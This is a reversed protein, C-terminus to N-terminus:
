RGRDLSALALKLVTAVDQTDIPREIGEHDCVADLATVADQERWGLSVLGAIVQDAGEDPPHAASSSTELAALDVTGKLELIIKQAGKRGLGPAQSLAKVDDAMVAHIVADPTLTSLIALAVRPGIGSVKQLRLFMSKSAEDLFGYLTLADQSVNLSTYAHVNEGSRIRALQNVPMHLEYGVGGVELIVAAPGISQVRGTLTGIMQHM